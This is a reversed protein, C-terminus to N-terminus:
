YPELGLAEMTEYHKCCGRCRGCAYEAVHCSHAFALIEPTVGSVKILESSTMRIAPAELGMGGEQLQLLIRMADIFPESGDAHVSDSAVTGIHLCEIGLMVARMAAITILMQNRYPWWESVPAITSPPRGALDGSGLSSCDVRIVEHSIKLVECVASAARIEAEASLQGYDITIALAPRKWYALAISDMGGSLLIASKMM